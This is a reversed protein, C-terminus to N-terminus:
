YKQLRDLLKALLEKNKIKAYSQPPHFKPILQRLEELTIPEIQKFSEIPLAYAQTKGDLYTLVSEYAGKQNQEALTAIENPTGKIPKGFEIYGGIKKEPTSLYIFAKVPKIGFQRRFEFKKTGDLILKWYQPKLSLLLYDEADGGLNDDNFLRQQKDM